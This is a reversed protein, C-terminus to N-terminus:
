ANYLPNATTPGGVRCKTGKYVVYWPIFLLVTTLVSLLLTFLWQIMCTTRTRHSCVGGCHRRNCYSFTFEKGTGCAVVFVVVVLIVSTITVFYVEIFGDDIGRDVKFDNIHQVIQWVVAATTALVTLYMASRSSVHSSLLNSHVVYAKSDNLVKVIEKWQKLTYKAADTYNDIQCLSQLRADAYASAAESVINENEEQHRSASSLIFLFPIIPMAANHLVQTVNHTWDLLPPNASFYIHCYVVVLIYAVCIMMTMFFSAISGIEAHWGDKRLNPNVNQLIECPSTKKSFWEHKVYRLYWIRCDIAYMLDTAYKCYLIYPIFLATFYTLQVFFCGSFYLDYDVSHAFYSITWKLGKQGHCTACKLSGNVESLIFCVFFHLCMSFHRSDRIEERFDVSNRCLEKFKAEWTKLKEANGYEQWHVIAVWPLAYVMFNILMYPLMIQAEEPNCLVLHTDNSSVNTPHQYNRIELWNGLCVLYTVIYLMFAAAGILTFVNTGFWQIWRNGWVWQGCTKPCRLAGRSLRSLCGSTWQTFRHFCQSTCGENRSTKEDDDKNIVLRTHGTKGGHGTGSFRVQFSTSM